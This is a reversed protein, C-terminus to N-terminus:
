KYDGELELVYQPINQLLPWDFNSDSSKLFSELQTKFRLPGQSEQHNSSEIAYKLDQVTRINAAYLEKTGIPGIGAIVSVDSYVGLSKNEIIVDQKKYDGMGKPVVFILKLEQFNVSECHM